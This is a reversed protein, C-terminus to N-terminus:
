IRELPETKREFGSNPRLFYHDRDYHHLLSFTQPLESCFSLIPDRDEFVSWRHICLALIWRLLSVRHTSKMKSSRPCARCDGVLLPKALSHREEGPVCQLKHVLRYELSHGLTNQAGQILKASKLLFCLPKVTKAYVGSRTCVKWSCNM